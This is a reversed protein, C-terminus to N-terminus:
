IIAHPASLSLPGSVAVPISILLPCPTPVVVVALFRHAEGSFAWAIAALALALPTYWAGLKDALRRIHSRRQEADQMVRMIRAFRSDIALKEARIDVPVDGNIAGSIVHSGPMKEIEFPEGTLYAENM